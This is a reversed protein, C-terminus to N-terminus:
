QLMQEGGKKMDNIVMRPAEAENFRLGGGADAILTALM